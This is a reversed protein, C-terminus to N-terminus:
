LGFSEESLGADYALGVGACTIIVNDSIYLCRSLKWLSCFYTGYVPYLAMMIIPQDAVASSDLFYHPLLNFFKFPLSDEDLISDALNEPLFNLFYIKLCLHDSFTVEWTGKRM